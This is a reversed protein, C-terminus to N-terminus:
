NENIIVLEFPHMIKYGIAKKLRIFNEESCGYIKLTAKWHTNSDNLVEFDKAGSLWILNEIEENM